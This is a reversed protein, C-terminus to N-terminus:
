NKNAKDYIKAFQDPTIKFVGQVTIQKKLIDQLEKLTITNTFIQTDSFRIAMIDQDANNKTIKM